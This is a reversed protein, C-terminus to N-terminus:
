TARGCRVTQGSILDWTRLDMSLVPLEEMEQRLLPSESDMQGNGFDDHNMTQSDVFEASQVADAVVRQQRRGGQAPRARFV